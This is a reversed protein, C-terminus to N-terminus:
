GKAMIMIWDGLRNTSLFTLGNTEIAQKLEAEDTYLIGSFLIVTGPKSVNKIAKLNDKIVNLNINALIIDFNQNEIIKDSNNVIIKYCNNQEINENTNRISWEDYDIALVKDAGLMEALIALVGTGTGFDLVSKGVFEIENMGRIMLQTTAHHGTGFSMKPTIVVEYRVNEIPEHFNARIAVFDDVIVPTFSEEWQQNWNQQEVSTKTYILNPFFNEVETFANANFSDEPVYANLYAGDEEFGTFGQLNLLAILQDKQEDEAVFEFRIYNM